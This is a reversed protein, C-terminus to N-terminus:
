EEGFKKWLKPFRNKLDDGEESWDIEIEPYPENPVLEMFEESGRGKRAVYANEAVSLMDECEIEGMDDAKIIRALYEPNDLSNYYVDKGQAILWGRFYDFGDDSCGGNIIYAAAWLDSKYSNTYLKQFIKGFKVIDDENRNSLLETLIEVQEYTDEAKSKAREIM